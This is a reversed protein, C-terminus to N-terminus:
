GDGICSGIGTANAKAVVAPLDDVDLLQHTSFSRFVGTSAMAVSIAAQTLSDPAHVVALVDHDGFMLHLLEVDAGVAEAARQLGLVAAEPHELLRAWHESTFSALLVFKPM